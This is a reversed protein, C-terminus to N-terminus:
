MNKEEFNCTTGRKQYPPEERETTNQDQRSADLRFLDTQMQTILDSQRAMQNQMATIVEDKREIREYARELLETMKGYDRKESNETEEVTKTKKCALNLPKGDETFFSSIELGYYNCLAVIKDASMPVIESRPKSTDKRGDANKPYDGVSWRLIGDNNTGLVNMLETHKVKTKALWKGFFLANYAYNKKSM